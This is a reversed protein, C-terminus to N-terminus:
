RHEGDEGAEKCAFGKGAFFGESEHEIDCTFLEGVDLDCGDQCGYLHAADGDILEEAEAVSEEFSTPVDVEAVVIGEIDDARAAILFVGEVDGGAGGEDDSASAVFNGLVAVSGTGRDASGAINEFSVAHTECSIGVLQAATKVLCTNAIEM